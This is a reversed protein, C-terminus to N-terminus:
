KHSALNQFTKKYRKTIKAAADVVEKHDSHRINKKAVTCEPSCYLHRANKPRFMEKCTICGRDELKRERKINQKYIMAPRCDPCRRRLWKNGLEDVYDYGKLRIRKKIKKCLTCSVESFDNILRTNKQKKTDLQNQETEIPGCIFCTLM